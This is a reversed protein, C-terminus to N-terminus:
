YGVVAHIIKGEKIVGFIPVKDYKLMLLKLELFETELISERKVINIKFKEKLEDVIKQIKEEDFELFPDVLVLIYDM